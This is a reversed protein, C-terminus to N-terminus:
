RAVGIVGGMQNRKATWHALGIERMEETVWDESAFGWSFPGDTEGDYEITMRTEFFPSRLPSSELLICGVDTLLSKIFRLQQRTNEESGFVGLGNGM